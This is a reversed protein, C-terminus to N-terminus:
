GFILIAAFLIFVAVAAIKIAALGSELRSLRNAGMLNLLTVASIMVSGFLPVNLGPIWQRVLVSVATAESSMALVMG